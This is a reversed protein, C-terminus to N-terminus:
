KNVHLNRILFSIALDAPRLPFVLLLGLSAPSHDHYSLFNNRRIVDPARRFEGDYRSVSHFSDNVLWEARYRSSDESAVVVVRFMQTRIDIMRSFRVAEFVVQILENEIASIM